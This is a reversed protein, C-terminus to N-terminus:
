FRSLHTIISQRVKGLHHRMAEFAADADNDRVAAVIALHENCTDNLREPVSKLDFMQTQRRLTQIITGLQENRTAEAVLGHLRDDVARVVKREIPSDSGGAHELISHLEDALADLAAVDIQGAAMRAAEPELLLRIQLNDMFDEVRMRRVQLGRAGQRDLLGESELMLLADRVPTRSMNLREALRRENVLAGQQAQGSVILDLIQEYAQQALRTDPQNLMRLRELRRLRGVGDRLPVTFAAFGLINWHDIEPIGGSSM